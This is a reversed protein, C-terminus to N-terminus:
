NIVLIRWPPFGNFIEGLQRSEPSSSSKPLRRLVLRLMVGEWTYRSAFMTASQRAFWPTSILVSCKQQSAWVESSKSM